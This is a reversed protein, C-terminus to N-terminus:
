LCVLGAVFCSDIDPGNGQHRPGSTWTKIPCHINAHTRTHTHKITHSRTHRERKLTSFELISPVVLNLQQRPEFSKAVRTIRPSGPPSHTRRAIPMEATGFYITPRVLKDDFRFGRYSLPLADTKYVSPGPNLGWHPSNAIVRWSAKSCGSSLTVNHTSILCECAPTV